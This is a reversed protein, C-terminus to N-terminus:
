EWDEMKEVTIDHNDVMFKVLEYSGSEHKSLEEVKEIKIKTNAIFNEYYQISSKLKSITNDMYGKYNDVLAKLQVETTYKSNVDRFLNDNLFKLESEYGMEKSLKFMLDMYEENNDVRYYQIDHRGDVIVISNVDSEDLSYRKPM